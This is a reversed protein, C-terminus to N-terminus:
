IECILTTYAPMSASIYRDGEKTVTVKGFDAIPKKVTVGAPFIYTKATISVNHVVLLREGSAERTFVMFHKDAQDDNFGELLAMEGTALAPYTNRLEIFKKYLRYISTPDTDQRAVNGVNADSSFRPNQWRTRYKDGAVPAWLMPERVGEDGGAKTGLMGIEEGYYLYPSGATTLMVAAAMKARKIDGGLTSRARDEDHNSLKTAQIYDPRVAAYERRYDILDKPYWKAHNNNIAYELRWWSSFDFLVPLGTYYPAARDHESFVEGIMYIDSKTKRLEEYLKRLFEPNETSNEDQYIHKVADLRFGDVGKGLWYRGADCIARFAPSTEATEAPGYNIDPMWDSFMGFYKYGTTGPSPIDRWEYSNYWKTMPVSGAAVAASPNDSFLFWDRYESDVSASASTFWPHYKSTHNVVFDMVVRIDLEHARAIMEEFDALTGYEPNIETYNEVDYGHYSRSTCIPTLWIGAVGLGDLYDLKQTIGRLDGIGDGNSDAFSRVFIEYFVGARKEGDWERAEYQSVEGDGPGPGPIPDDPGCAALSFITVLLPLIYRFTTKKM